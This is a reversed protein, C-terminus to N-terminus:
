EDEYIFYLKDPDAKEIDFENSSLFVHNSLSDILGQLEAIKKEFPKKISKFSIKNGKDTEFFDDDVCEDVENMQSITISNTSLSSLVRNVIEQKESETM